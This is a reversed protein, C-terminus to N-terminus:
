FSSDNEEKETAFAGITNIANMQEDLYNKKIVARVKEGGYMLYFMSVTFLVVSWDLLYEKYTYYRASEGGLHEVFDGIALASIIIMGITVLFYIILSARYFRSLMKSQYGDPYKKQFLYICFIPFICTLLLVFPIGLRFLYEDPDPYRSNKVLLIVLMVSLTSCICFQIGAVAQILWKRKM